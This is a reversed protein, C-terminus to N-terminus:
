RLFAEARNGNRTRVDSVNACLVSALKYVSGHVLQTLEDTHKSQLWGSM